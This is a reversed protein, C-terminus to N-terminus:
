NEGAKRAIMQVIENAVMPEDSMLEIWEDTTVVAMPNLSVYSDIAAMLYTLNQQKALSTMEPVMKPTLRQGIHISCVEVLDQAAFRDGIYLLEIIEDANLDQDIRGTYFFKVMREVVLVSLDKLEVVGTHNEVLDEHSLMRNFYDSRAKLVEEDAFVDGDACSLTIDNAPDRVDFRSAIDEATPIEAPYKSPEMSFYVLGETVEAIVRIRLEGKDGLHCSNYSPYKLIHGEDDLTFYRHDRRDDRDDDEDDRSGHLHFAKFTVQLSKSNEALVKQFVMEFPMATQGDERDGAFNIEWPKEPMFRVTMQLRVDDSIQWQFVPSKKIARTFDGVTIVTRNRVYKVKCSLKDDSDTQVPPMENAKPLQASPTPQQRSNGLHNLFRQVFTLNKEAM